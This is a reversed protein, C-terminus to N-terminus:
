SAVVICADHAHPALRASRLGRADLLTLRGDDLSPTVVRGDLACVNYSGTTVRRTALLKADGLRHIRLTGSDGSAVYVRKAFFDFTVHQPPADGPVAQLKRLTRADHIALRREVGSSIWVRLGDPTFGVDHALDDAPFTRLLRPRRPVSVDVLALRPAESGLSTIVRTGDLSISIHRAGQGVEVRGIARASPVHIAVVQGAHEDSVYAFTGRPDAAAYRPAQFGELVRRVRPLTAALVTVTGSENSMVLAGSFRDVAEIGHPQHPVALSRVVRMDTLRVALIRDESDATVLALPTGGRVTARAASPLALVAPAAAAAILLERRNM